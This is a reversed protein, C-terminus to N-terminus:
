MWPHTQINLASALHYALYEQSSTFQPYYNLKEGQKAQGAYRFHCVDIYALPHGALAAWLDEPTTKTFLSAIAADFRDRRSGVPTPAGPLSALTKTRFNKSSDLLIRLSTVDGIANRYWRLEVNSPVEQSFLELVLDLWALAAQKLRPEECRTPIALKDTQLAVDTKLM